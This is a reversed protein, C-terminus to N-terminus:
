RAPEVAAINSQSVRQAFETVQARVTTWANGTEVQLDHKAPVEVYNVATRFQQALKHTLPPKVLDDHTGQIVLVPTPAAIRAASQYAQQGTTRIQSFLELPLKFDRIHQRVIPDDLDIGPLFNHIGTRVEPDDFNSKLLRFPRINRLVPKLIPLLTWLIHDVKWFPAMLILGDILQRSAALIALAGGLSYGIVIVYRYQKRLESLATSVANLWDQYTYHLLKEIDPGFGPLLVGRTTWGLEELALALPRMEAPTGPFGHILLAATEGGKVHFFPQHEM